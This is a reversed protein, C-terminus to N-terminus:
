GEARWADVAAQAEAAHDWEGSYEPSDEALALFARVAAAVQEPSAWPDPGLPYPQENSEHPGRRAIEWGVETNWYVGIGHDFETEDVAPHEPDLNLVASPLPNGDHDEEDHISLWWKSPGLSTANLAEVVATIYPTHPLHEDSM